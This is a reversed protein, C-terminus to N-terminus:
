NIDILEALRINVVDIDSNLMKKNRLMREHNEDFNKFFYDCYNITNAMKSYTKEDFQSKLSLLNKLMQKFFLPFPIKIIIMGRTIDLLPIESHLSHYKLYLRHIIKFKTNELNELIAMSTKITILNERFAVLVQYAVLEKFKKNITSHNELSQSLIQEILYTNQKILISNQENNKIVLREIFESFQSNNKALIQELFKDQEVKIQHSFIKTFDSIQKQSKLLFQNTLDKNQRRSQLLLEENQKKNQTILEENQLTSQKTIEPIQGIFEKIDEKHQETIKKINESIQIIFKAVKEANYNRIKREKWFKSLRKGIKNM